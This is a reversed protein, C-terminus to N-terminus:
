STDGPGQTGAPGHYEGLWAMVDAYTGAPINHYSSVRFRRYLEGFVAQYPNRGTRGTGTDCGAMETAIAKVLASIEAAQAESIVQGPAVLGEISGVRRLLGGVVAAAQDLRGTLADQGDALVTIHTDLTTFRADVHQEFALQQRAMVAIAEAMQAIHELASADPGSPAPSRPGEAVGAIGTERAFAEWVRRRVWRKYVRLRERLDEHVRSPEIMALWLPVTELELCQMTQMGGVTQIKLRRLGEAMVDDRKLRAFQAPYGIGLNDCLLRLPLYILDPEVRAAVVEDGEMLTIHRQETPILVASSTDRPPREM